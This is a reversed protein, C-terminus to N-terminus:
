QIQLTSYIIKLDTTAKPWNQGKKPRCLEIATAQPWCVLFRLFICVKIEIVQHHLNKWQGVFDLLATNLICHHIKTCLKPVTLNHKEKWSFRKQTSQCSLKPFLLQLLLDFCLKSYLFQNALSFQYFFTTRFISQTTSTWHPLFHLSFHFLEERSLCRKLSRKLSKRPWHPEREEDLLQVLDLLAQLWVLQWFFRPFAVQIEWSTKKGIGHWHVKFVTNSFSELHQNKTMKWWNKDLKLLRKDPLVTLCTAESKRFSEFM